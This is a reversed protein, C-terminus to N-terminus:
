RCAFILHGDGRVFDSGTSGDGDAKIHIVGWGLFIPHCGLITAEGEVGVEGDGGVGGEVIGIERCYVWGGSGSDGSWDGGGGSSINSM